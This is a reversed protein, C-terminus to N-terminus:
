PTEKNSSAPATPGAADVRPRAMPHVLRRPDRQAAELARLRADVDTAERLRAATTITNLLLRNRAVGNDLAITDAVVIELLRWQGDLTAIDGLDFATSLTGERRRRQGGLKRAAEAEEANAPEHVFCLEGGRLPRAGCREGAANRATCRPGNM